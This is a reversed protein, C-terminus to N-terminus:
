TQSVINDFILGKLPKKLSFVVTNIYKWIHWWMSFFSAELAFKQLSNLRIGNFWSERSFPDILNIININWWRGLLRFLDLAMSFGFFLHNQSEVANGCNPCLVCPVDLGRNSLNIRTPLKDLFMRWAFVNLKIPLFKSWRTSSSSTVLLHKDIEERASKILFDGHGNLTWSWRDSNFRVKFCDGGLWKDYWFNSNNGNGIVKKCFGLLDVGKSKLNAVAKHITIWISCSTCTLPSQDLSGNSGHTAKIVNLWLGGYQKQAMVKRWCVWTMKHEDMEAGLFFSNRLRELHSLVGDLAKFLSMYYTPLSGLVSKLLTLRGRVSLSQAKWKSLKCTVNEIVENWSNVRTMNAAVKVGLYTFLLSNALCGFSNAMSQIESSHVGLGYLSSKHVNVKLGSVLFFWHLMMMLVNVNSSSWKGIFMADDAYFLCSIPILDNKGVLIPAFMGRDIVRQFAVHLSEHRISRLRYNGRHFLFEDTPSGNVLVLAKSSHLCGRILERWKSGFGFKGLIDDLHDWRVSDFAKQFDVRFLIAQEKRSKCWSVIENLILPGDLIKPILTIFSPNCGNPFISSNFFEKVANSVDESVGELDHYLIVGLVDLSLVEMPVRSWDPASFRTTFHNYFDRKVRGPNDIWEGDVLIGKIAQSTNEFLTKTFLLTKWPVPSNELQKPSIEPSNEVYVDYNEVHDLSNEIKGSSKEVGDPSNSNNDSGEESQAIDDERFEPVWRTVEKVRVVSVKGELIVKFSKAIV